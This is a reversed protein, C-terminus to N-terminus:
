TFDAKSLYSQYCSDICTKIYGHHFLKTFQPCPPQSFLTQSIPVQIPVVLSPPKPLYLNVDVPNDLIPVTKDPMPQDQAQTPIQPVADFCKIAEEGALIILATLDRDVFRCTINALM